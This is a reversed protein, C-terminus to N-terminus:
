SIFSEVSAVQLLLGIISAFGTLGGFLGAGSLLGFLGAGLLGGVLMSGFGGFRSPSAAAGIPSQAGPQSFTRNMPAAQGPATPTSPPASFTRSGRSGFSGGGGIRADAQSVQFAITAILALAVSLLRIGAM